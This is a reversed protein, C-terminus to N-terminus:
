KENIGTFEYSQVSLVPNNTFDYEYLKKLLKNYGIETPTFNKLDFPIHTNCILLKGEGTKYFTGYGPFISFSEDVHVFYNPCILETILLEWKGKRYGWVDYFNNEFSEGGNWNVLITTDNIFNVQSITYLTLYDLSRNNYVGMNDLGEMENSIKIDNNWCNPKRQLHALLKKDLNYIKISYETIDSIYIMDKYVGYTGDYMYYTMASGIPIDFIIHNKQEKTKLDFVYVEPHTYDFVNGYQVNYIIVQTETLKINTCLKSSKVSHDFTYGTKDKKYIYYKNKCKLAMVSKNIDYGTVEDNEAMIIKFTDCGYNNYRILDLQEGKKMENVHNIFFIYGDTYKIDREMIDPDDNRLIINENFRFYKFFHEHEKNSKSNKELPKSTSKNNNECSVLIIILLVFIIISSKM